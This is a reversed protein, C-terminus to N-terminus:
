SKPAIGQEELYRALSDAVVQNGRVTLHVHVPDYLLGSADAHGAAARLDTTLDHFRYGFPQAHAALYSRQADDFGKLLPALKPDDLVVRGDYASLAWPTYSVVAVFGHERALEGFRRLADDWIALPESGDAQHRATM